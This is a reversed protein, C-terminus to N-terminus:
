QIAMIRAIGPLVQGQVPTPDIREGDIMLHGGPGTRQMDPELRFALVPVFEVEPSDVHRGESMSLFLNLLHNRSIGDRVFMLHIIGDALRASPAGLMDSGLHTQYVACALVFKGEVTVWNDPVPEDLPPLLPYPVAVGDKKSAYVTEEEYDINEGASISLGSPKVATEASPVDGNACLEQQSRQGVTIAIETASTIEMVAASSSRPAEPEAPLPLHDGGGGNSNQNNKTEGGGSGNNQVHEGNNHPRKEPTSEGESQEAITFNVGKHDEMDDGGGGNAVAVNNRLKDSKV